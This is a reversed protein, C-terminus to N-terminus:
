PPCPRAPARLSRRSWVSVQEPGTQFAEPQLVNVKWAGNDDAMAIFMVKGNAGKFILYAYGDGRVRFSLVKGIQTAASRAAKSSKGFFLRLTAACGKPKKVKGKANGKVRAQAVMTALEQSFQKSASACARSWQGARFASLYATLDAIAQARQDTQGEAGFVQISNDGGKTVPVGPAVSKAGPVPDGVPTHQKNTRREAGM